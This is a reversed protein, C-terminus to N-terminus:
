LDIFFYIIKIKYTISDQEYYNGSWYGFFPSNAITEEKKCSTFILSVALFTYLIKKM